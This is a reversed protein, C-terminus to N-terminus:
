LNDLLMEAVSNYLKQASSKAEDTASYLSFGKYARLMPIDNQSDGITLVENNQWNKIQLLEKIGNAKSVNYSCIDLYNMNRHASFIGAYQMKIQELVKKASNDDDYECSLQVTNVENLAEQITTEKIINQNKYKPSQFYTLIPSEQHQIVVSMKDSASFLLHWSKKAIDSHLVKTLATKSLPFEKILNLNEDFITAGNNCLVYDYAFDYLHVEDMLSRMDRGSCFCFINGQERWKKVAELNEVPISGQLGQEHFYLTGDFDSVAIKM